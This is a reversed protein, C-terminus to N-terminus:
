RIIMPHYRAGKKNASIYKQQEEWFFKIFPPVTSKDVNSMITCFDSSLENDVPVSKSKIEEKLKFIEFKLEKNELRYNQMTLKVREPLTFKIAANLKAPASLNDSKRKSSKREKKELVCPVSHSRMLMQCASSRFYKTQSLPFTTEDSPLFIKPIVHEIYGSSLFSTDKM